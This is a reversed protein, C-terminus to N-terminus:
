RVLYLLPFIIIWLFDVMHWYCAASEFGTFREPMRGRRWRLWFVTLLICGVVVHLLHIGTLVYYYMFFEGASPDHGATIKVVYELVKSAVFGIGGAIGVALWRVAAADQHARLALLARAVCWSSALLLLTNVGGHDPSLFQRAEEFSGVDKARAAMFSGFLLSFIGLDGAIFVWFGEVGPMRRPSRGRAPARELQRTTM